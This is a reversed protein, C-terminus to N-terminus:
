LDFVERLTALVGDETNAPAVHRAARLVTPTPMPWRM